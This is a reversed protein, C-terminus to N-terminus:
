LRKSKFVRSGLRSPVPPIKVILHWIKCYPKSPGNVLKELKEKDKKAQQMQGLERDYGKADEPVPYLSAGFVGCAKAIRGETQDGLLIVFFVSKHVMSGDGAFDRFPQEVPFFDALANGRTIRFVMRRFVDQKITPITGTLLKRFSFEEKKEDRHGKMDIKVDRMEHAFDDSHLLPTQGAQARGKVDDEFERVRGAFSFGKFTELVKIHEDFSAMDRHNQEAFAKNRAVEDEIPSIYEEVNELVRSITGEGISANPLPVKFDDMMKALEMLKREWYVCDVVHKKYHNYERTPHDKSALDVVHFKAMRGIAHLTDYAVAETMKISVYTM